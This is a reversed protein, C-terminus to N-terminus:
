PLDDLLADFLTEGDEDSASPPDALSEVAFATDVLLAVPPRELQDESTRRESVLNADAADADPEGSRALAATSLAVVVADLEVAAALPGAPPSLNLMNLLGGNFRAILADSAGVTQSRDYDYVNTVPQFIGPNSRAGIEDFASTVAALPPANIGSDGLRSGFYFTDATALGTDETALLSVELWTNKIASDAWTIVVRDTGGAGAGARVSIATPAPAVTWSALNNNGGLRFTFDDASITGPVHTVDIMVGNIGRSYSSVNAFSSIGDGVRYASKDTAIAADDAVGIAASSGDFKSNNYFLRRGVVSPSLPAIEDAAYHQAQFVFNVLLTGLLPDNVGLPPIPDEPGIMQDGAFPNVYKWVEEGGPTVETMNGNTGYTILTNGNPLRMAGSIIAAFNAVPGNYTWATTAPGYAAGVALSYTGNPLIPPTIEEVSTFDTGPRALGNNLVTINGAGEQGDPIWRPDHQFFLKRDAESGRDYAQPNGWRYLLDGGRGYNGGSHGAAQATTTSHDIIWIESFERVSLVIQDLEANYDIGNAHTWDEAQGGGPSFTSVFNIDILQPNTEVGTAGYYNSKSPDFEQVLHDWVKWEWVVTGGGNEYDPEVEVIKDPYLYGDGPLSPDRGAQTAEAESRYEWAIILLNGNPMIEFDHHALYQPSDYAFEWIKNGEWDFREFLGGAGVANIFGNGDQGHPAGDRILSGDPLLHAVLGPLHESEWSNVVNGQKDILFTTDSTNPAFLVYGDSAEPENFFLGTTQALLMRPELLEALLKSTREARSHNLRAALRARRLNRSISKM